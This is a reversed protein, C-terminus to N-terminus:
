KIFCINVDETVASVPATLLSEELPIELRELRRIFAEACICLACNGKLNVEAAIQQTKIGQSEAQM